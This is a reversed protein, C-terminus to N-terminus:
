AKMNLIIIEPVKKFFKACYAGSFHDHVLDAASGATKAENFHRRFFFALIGHQPKVVLLDFTTRDRNGNSLFFFWPSAATTVATTTAAAATTIAATAAAAAATAVSPLQM